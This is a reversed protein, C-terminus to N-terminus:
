IPATGLINNVGPSTLLATRNIVTTVSADTTFSLQGIVVRHILVPLWIHCCTGLAPFAARSVVQRGSM